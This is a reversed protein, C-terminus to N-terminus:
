LNNELAYDVVDLKTIGITRAIYSYDYGGEMLMNVLRSEKEPTLKKYLRSLLSDGSHELQEEEKSEGLYSFSLYPKDVIQVSIVNDMKKVARTKIQKIYKMDEGHISPAVAFASDVFNIIMKSGGLNDQTIPSFPKRKPCHALLLITLGFRDKITKMESILSVMKSASTVNGFGNTINDIVIFKPARPSEQLKIINNKIVSLMNIRDNSALANIEARMYDSPIYDIANSYRSSFQAESMEMDFYMTPIRPSEMGFWEHGKGSVFFAIDNALITKGTNSDGFMVSLDNKHILRGWLPETKPHNASMIESATKIKIIDSNSM